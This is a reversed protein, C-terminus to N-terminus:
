SADEDTWFNEETAPRWGVPTQWEWTNWRFTWPSGEEPVVILLAQTERNVLVRGQRDYQGTIEPALAKALLQLVKEVSGYNLSLLGVSAGFGKGNHGHHDTSGFVFKAALSPETHNSDFSPVEAVKRAHSPYDTVFIFDTTYSM